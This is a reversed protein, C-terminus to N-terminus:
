ATEAEEKSAFPFDDNTDVGAAELASHILNELSHFAVAALTGYVVMGEWLGSDDAIWSRDNAAEIIACCAPATRVMDHADYDALLGHRVLQGFAADVEEWVRDLVGERGPWGNNTYDDVMDAVVAEVTKLVDNKTTM